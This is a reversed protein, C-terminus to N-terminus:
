NYKKVKIKFLKEVQQTKVPVRLLKKNEVKISICEAQLGTDDQVIVAKGNPTFWYMQAWANWFASQKTKLIESTSLVERKKGLTVVM